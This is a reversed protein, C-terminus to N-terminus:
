RARSGIVGAVRLEFGNGSLGAPVNIRSLPAQGPPPTRAVGGEVRYLHEYGLALAAAAVRDNWLGYPFALHDPAAREPYTERLWERPRTLEARLEADDLATLNPHS